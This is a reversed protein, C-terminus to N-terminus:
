QSRQRITSGSQRRMYYQLVAATCARGDPSALGCSGNKKEAHEIARRVRLPTGEQLDTEVDVCFLGTCPCLPAIPDKPWILHHAKAVTITRELLDFYAVQCTAHSCWYSPECLTDTDSPNVHAALTETSVQMGLTGCEPCSPPALSDNERCFAKNM